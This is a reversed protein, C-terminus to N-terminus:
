IKHTSVSILSWNPRKVNHNLHKAFTFLMELYVFIIKRPFNFSLSKRFQFGSIGPFRHM